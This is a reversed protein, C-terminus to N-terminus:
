TLIACKVAGENDNHDNDVEDEDDGDGDGNDVIKVDDKILNIFRINLDNIEKDLKIEKITENILNDVEEDLPEIYKIYGYNFPIEEEKFFYDYVYNIFNLITEM